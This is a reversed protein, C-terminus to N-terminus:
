ADAVVRKASEMGAIQGDIYACELAARVCSQQIENLQSWLLKNQSIINDIKDQM